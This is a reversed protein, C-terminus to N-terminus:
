INEDIRLKQTTYPTFDLNDIGFVVLRVWPNDMFIEMFHNSPTEGAYKRVINNMYELPKNEQLGGRLIGFRSTEFGALTPLNFEYCDVDPNENLFINNFQLENIGSVVIRVWPNEKFVEVFENYGDSEVFNSVAFDLTSKPNEIKDSCKIIAIKYQGGQNGTILQECIEVNEM